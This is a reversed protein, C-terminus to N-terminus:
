GHSMEQQSNSFDYGDVGFWREAGGAVIFNCGMDALWGAKQVVAQIALVRRFADNHSIQDAGLDGNLEHLLENILCLNTALEEFLQSEKGKPATSNESAM